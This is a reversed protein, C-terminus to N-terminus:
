SNDALKDRLFARLSQKMEDPMERELAKRCVKGTTKYTDLFRVCPPCATLHSELEQSAEPDLEGELYDVLHKLADNCTHKM